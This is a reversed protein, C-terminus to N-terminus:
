TTPMTQVDKRRSLLGTVSYLQYRSKELRILNFKCWLALMRTGGGSWEVGSWDSCEM